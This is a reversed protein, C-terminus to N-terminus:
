RFRVGVAGLRTFAARLHDGPQVRLTRTLPGTIVVDGAKLGSGLGALHNALWVVANLPHDLMAAGAATATLRGGHEVVVGELRLDVQRLLHLSRGLVFGAGCANDAVADVPTAKGDRFRSDVIELAATVGEAARAVDMGTVGPGALDRGMVLAIGAEVGPGIFTDWPPAAGDLWATSALLAGAIPEALGPALGVKWGARRDGARRRLRVGERQIAYADALTLGPHDGSLAGIPERRREAQLLAEALRHRQPARLTMM